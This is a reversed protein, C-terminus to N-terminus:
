NSYALFNEDHKPKKNIDNDYEDEPQGDLMPMKADPLYDATDPMNPTTFDLTHYDGSGDFNSFASFGENTNINAFGECQKEVNVTKVSSLWINDKAVRYHVHKYLTRNMLGVTYRKPCNLKLTALGQENSRVIGSNQYQDYAAKWNPTEIDNKNPETSAWYVVYSNPTVQVPVQLNYKTPVRETLLNAPFVSEGLFPLYTDRQVALYVAAIAVLIYVVFQLCKPFLKKVLDLQFLAVSGWNIAGILVLIIAIMHLHKSIYDRTTLM